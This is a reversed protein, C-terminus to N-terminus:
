LSKLMALREVPTFKHALLIQFAYGGSTSKIDLLKACVKVVGQKNSGYLEVTGARNIHFYYEATIELCYRMQTPTYGVGM